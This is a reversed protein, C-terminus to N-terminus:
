PRGLGLDVLLGPAAAWGEPDSAALRTSEAVLWGELPSETRRFASSAVHRDHTSRVFAAYLVAPATAALEAEAGPEFDVPVMLRGFFAGIEGALPDAGQSHGGWRVIPGASRLAIVVESGDIVAARLVGGFTLFRNEVALRDIVRVSGWSVDLAVPVADGRDFTAIRGRGDRAVWFSLLEPDFHRLTPRDRMAVLLNSGGPAGPRDSNVLSFGLNVLLRGAAPAWDREGMAAFDQAETM